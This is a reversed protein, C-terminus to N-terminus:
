AYVIFNEKELYFLGNKPTFTLVAGICFVSYEQLSSVCELYFFSNRTNARMGGRSIPHFTHVFLHVARIAM